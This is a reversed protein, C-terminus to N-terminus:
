SLRVRLRMEAENSLGMFTDLLRREIQDPEWVSAREIGICEEPPVEKEIGATDFITCRRYDGIDQMFQVVPEAVEGELKRQGINAWRDHNFLRVSTKFLTPQAEIVDLDSSPENTRYNYFAMYPEALVRGYAFSGDELPIRVFTGPVLKPIKAM